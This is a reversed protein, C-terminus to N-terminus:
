NTELGVAIRVGHDLRIDNRNSTLTGAGKDTLSALTVGRLSSGMAIAVGPGCTFFIAQDGTDAILSAQSRMSSIPLTSPSAPDQTLYPRPAVGVLIGRIPIARIEKSPVIQDFVIKMSAMGNGASKSQVETVKGLLIAGKPLIVGDALKAPALTKATIEEGVRANKTDLKGAIDAYLPATASASTMTSMQLASTPITFLGVGFVAPAIFALLRHPSMVTEGLIENELRIFDGIANLIGCRKAATLSGEYGPFLPLGM